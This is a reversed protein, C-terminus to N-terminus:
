VDKIIVNLIRTNVSRTKLFSSRMKVSVGAHRKNGLWYSQVGGIYNIGDIYNIYQNFKIERINIRSYEFFIHLPEEIHKKMQSHLRRRKRNTEM